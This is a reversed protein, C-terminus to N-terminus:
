MHLQKGPIRLEYGDSRLGFNHESVIAVYRRFRAGAM